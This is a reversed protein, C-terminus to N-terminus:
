STTDDGVGTLATTSLRSVESGRAEYESEQSVVASQWRKAETQNEAM